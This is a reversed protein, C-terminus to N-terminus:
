SPKSLVDSRTFFPVVRHGRAEINQRGGELRDVLAIVFAVKGGEAEVAEIAQLTSGGTTVVDDVVVVTNGESFNGEILKKMGYGKVAKRVTFTQLPHGPTEVQAAMGISLSIPDAGMTLGGIADIRVDLEAATQKVVDWGVLGVLLAGAPDLTTKKCNVYLDSKAGSALTFDGYRVSKEILM